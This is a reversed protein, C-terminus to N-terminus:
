VPQSAIQKDIEATLDRPGSLERGERDYLHGDQIRFDGSALARLTQVILPLERRVGERRVAAFLPQNEGFKDKVADVSGLEQIEKEFEEWLGDWQEGRISFTCFSVPPGKDLEPTVLHMMVGTHAARTELLQWIVEQWTGAPGDPEAPHLNIIPFASCVEPSVVWMYGALVVSDASFDSIKSLVEHHYRNRWLERNKKRLDPEFDRASLTVVPIGCEEARAILIDSHESEGRQRSIFCYSFRGPIVGEICADHVADFLNLADRDRGTSWWGFSYM